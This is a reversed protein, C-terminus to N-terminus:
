EVSLIKKKVDRYQLLSMLIKNIIQVQKQLKKQDGQENRMENMIRRHEKTFQEYMQIWANESLDDM